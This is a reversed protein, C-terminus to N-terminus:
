RLCANSTLPGGAADALVAGSERFFDPSLIGPTVIALAKADSDGRNDFAHVSGRPICIADGVGITAEAGDVTWVSEGDLGYITEEYGDHSHPAPLRAHAPIMVEFVAVSGSSESGEVLFRVRTAGVTIVESAVAGGKQKSM